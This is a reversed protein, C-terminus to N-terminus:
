KGRRIFMLKPYRFRGNDVMEPEEGDGCQVAEFLSRRRISYDYALILKEFDEKEQVTDETVEMVGNKMRESVFTEIQQQSYRRKIKNLDLLEERSLEEQVEEPVLGEQFDVKRKRRRYLSEASLLDVQSLNMRGGIARIMREQKEGSGAALQNLLQIVMGRMDDDENLLYNLRSVTARVYKSHEKDMNAIRHEIDDFGREILDLKEIVDAESPQTETGSRGRSRGCLGAMWTTDERMQRLWQKIDAKYMYFNDSTKLIHYKKRVVEEVYGELHDRLLEGYVRQELLSGFFKDMNHLMDQLTKNLRRTNVLATNLLSMNARRDHKLSFLIAYVNQIYIQTEDEEESMLKDMAEIMVAAYDPIVINTTLSNYDEVKRLWGTRILWNLIRTAVPELVDLEGEYEDWLLGVNKQSFYANLTQICVERSLYYNSYEYEENICRLAEMYIERNCSRFLGWFHDPIEQILSM